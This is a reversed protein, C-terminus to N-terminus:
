TVTLKIVQNATTFNNTASIAVNYATASGSAPTGAITAPGNGNDVLTLGPPLGTGAIAPYPYGTTTVTFSFATGVTASAKVASTITPPQDVALSFSEADRGPWPGLTRTTVWLTPGIGFPIASPERVRVPRQGSRTLTMVPQASCMRSPALRPINRILVKIM